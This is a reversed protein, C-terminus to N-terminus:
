FVVPIGGVFRFGIGKTIRTVPPENEKKPVDEDNEYSPTVSEYVTTKEEVKFCIPTYWHADDLPGSSKYSHVYIKVNEGFRQCIQANTPYVVKSVGLSDVICEQFSCSNGKHPMEPTFIHIEGNFVKSISKNKLYETLEFLWGKLESVFSNERATQKLNRIYDCADDVNLPIMDLSDPNSSMYNVKHRWGFPLVAIDVDPSLQAIQCITEIYTDCYLNIDLTDVLIYTIKKNVPEAGVSSNSLADPAINKALNHRISRLEKEFNNLTIRNKPDIPTAWRFLTRVGPCIREIEGWFANKNYSDLAKELWGSVNKNEFGYIVNLDSYFTRCKAPDTIQTGKNCEFLLTLPNQIGDFDWFKFIEALMTGLAFVDTKESVSFRRMVDEPATNSYSFFGIQTLNSRSPNEKSQTKVSPFDILRLRKTGDPLNQVVVNAFKVDRHAVINHNKLVTHSFLQKLGSVIQIMCDIKEIPTKFDDIDFQSYIPEIVACHLTNLDNSRAIFEDHTTETLAKVLKQADDNLALVERLNDGEFPFFDWFHREQPFLHEQLPFSLDVTKVCYDQDFVLGNPLSDYDSNFQREFCGFYIKKDRGSPNLRKKLTFVYPIRNYVFQFQELRSIPTSAQNNSPSM